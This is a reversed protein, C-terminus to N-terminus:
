LASGPGDDATLTGVKVICAQGDAARRRLTTWSRPGVWLEMVSLGESLVVFDELSEGYRRILKSRMDRYSMCASAQVESYPTAACPGGGHLCAVLALWLM